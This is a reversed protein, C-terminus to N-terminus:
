SLLLYLLCGKEGKFLGLDMEECPTSICSNGHFANQSMCGGLSADEWQKGRDGPRLIRVFEVEKEIDSNKDNWKWKEVYSELSKDEKLPPLM